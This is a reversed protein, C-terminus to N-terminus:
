CLKSKPTNSGTGLQTKVFKLQIFQRRSELQFKRCMQMESAKRQARNQFKRCILKTLNEELRLNSNYCLLSAFNSNADEQFM